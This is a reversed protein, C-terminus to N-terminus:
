IEKEKLRFWAVVWFLPAWAFQVLYKLMNSITPSVSYLLYGDKVDDRRQHLATFDWSNHELMGNQIRTIFYGFAFIVLAGAVTTLVFTFRSFYVAGLLYFAQIAFYAYIFNPLVEGFGHEYDTLRTFSVYPKEKIMGEIFLISLSKISFFCLCYVATFLVTTFFITCVLKELHTAPLSLWYVGKDKSDLMNFAMSAFISGSIFLGFIFILWMGEERYNPGGVALLFAFVLALLGFLALASFTYLRANEFLQKTLLKGLRSFSFSAAM